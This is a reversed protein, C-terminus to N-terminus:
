SCRVLVFKLYRLEPCALPYPHDEPQGYDGIVTGRKRVKSLANKCIELFMDNPIHSSCSSFAILGGASLVRLAAIFLNQYSEKAREVHKEAPAFSPPDVVILDWENGNKAATDLYDFADAAIGTHTSNQINNLTWNSEAWAIAPKALDVTTVSQAGNAGAYVSFGGTYGFLNLVRKGQALKGFRQRNDRQDFFFGSKQGQVIDAEFLLGHEKFSIRSQPLSGFIVKGQEGSDSRPKVYCVEIGLKQNLWECIGELNWFGSPGKGDLKFVVHKGYVDCVLGPLSDGEGNLLRFGTTDASFLRRRLDLAALLRAEILQDDLKIDELACVRVAIPSEPDYMGFAFLKGERDRVLARSGATAAPTEQLWDRYIWPFGQKLHRVHDRALKLRVAQQTDPKIFKM